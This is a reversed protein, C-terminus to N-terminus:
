GVYEAIVCVVDGIALVLAISVMLVAALVQASDTDAKLYMSVPYMMLALNALTLVIWFHSKNRNREM